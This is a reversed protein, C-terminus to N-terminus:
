SGHGIVNAATKPGTMSIDVSGRSSCRRPLRHRLSITSQHSLDGFRETFVMFARAIPAGVVIQKYVVMSQTETM